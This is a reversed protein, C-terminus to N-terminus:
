PSPERINRGYYCLIKINSLRFISQYNEDKLRRNKLYSKIFHWFGKDLKNEVEKIRKSNSTCVASLITTPQLVNNSPSLQPVGFWSVSYTYSKVHAGRFYVSKSKSM